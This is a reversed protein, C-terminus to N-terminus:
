TALNSYANGGGSLQTPDVEFLEFILQGGIGGEETRNVTPNSGGEAARWQWNYYHSSTSPYWVATASMGIERVSNGTSNNMLGTASSHGVQGNKLARVQISDTGANGKAAFTIKCIVINGSASITHTLNNLGGFNAWSSVGARTEQQGTYAVRYGKILAPDSQTGSSFNIAM